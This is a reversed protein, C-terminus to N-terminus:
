SRKRTVVYQNHCHDHDDCYKNALLDTMINIMMNIIMDDIITSIM